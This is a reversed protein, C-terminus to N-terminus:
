SDPVNLSLRWVAGAQTFSYFIRNRLDQRRSEEGLLRKSAQAARRDVQLTPRSVTLRSPKGRECTIRHFLIRCSGSTQLINAFL